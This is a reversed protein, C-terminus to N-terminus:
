QTAVEGVRTVVLTTDDFSRQQGTFYRMKSLIANLADQASCSVAAKMAQIVRDRGFKQRNADMADTLGDSYLLILDDAHLDLLGKAYHQKADIGVLM